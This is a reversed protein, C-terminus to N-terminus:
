NDNSTEKIHELTEGGHRPCLNNFHNPECTCRSDMWREYEEQDFPQEHQDEPGM